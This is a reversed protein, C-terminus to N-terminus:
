FTSIEQEASVEFAQLGKYATTCLIVLVGDSFLLILNIDIINLWIFGNELSKFSIIVLWVHTNSICVHDRLRPSSTGQSGM